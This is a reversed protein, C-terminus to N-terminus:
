AVVLGCCGSEGIGRQPAAEICNTRLGWIKRGAQGICYGCEQMMVLVWRANYRKCDNNDLFPRFLAQQMRRQGPGAEGGVGGYHASDVSRSAVLKFSDHQHMKRWHYM